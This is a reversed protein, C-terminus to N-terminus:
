NCEFNQRRERDEEGSRLGVSWCRVLWVMMQMFDSLFGSLLVAQCCETSINTHLLPVIETLRRTSGVNHVSVLPSYLQILKLNDLASFFCHSKFVSWYFVYLPRGRSHKTRVDGWANDADSSPWNRSCEGHLAHSYFRMCLLKDRGMYLEPLGEHM